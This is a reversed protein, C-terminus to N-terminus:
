ALSWSDSVLTVSESMRVARSQPVSWKPGTWSSPWANTLTLQSIQSRNRGRLTLVVDQPIAQVDTTGSVPAGAFWTRLTQDGDFTRSVMTDASSQKTDREFRRKGTADVTRVVGVSQTMAAVASVKGLPKGGITMVISTPIHTVGHADVVAGAEDGIASAAAFFTAAGVAVAGGAKLMDRRTSGEKIEEEM